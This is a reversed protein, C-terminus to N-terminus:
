TFQLYKMGFTIPWCAYQNKPLIKIRRAAPLAGTATFRLARFWDVFNFFERYILSEEKFFKVGELKM